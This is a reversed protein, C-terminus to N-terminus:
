SRAEQFMHYTICCIPEVYGMYVIAAVSPKRRKLARREQRHHSGIARRGTKKQVTQKLV